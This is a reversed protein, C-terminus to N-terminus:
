QVYKGKKVQALVDQRATLLAPKALMRLAEITGYRGAAGMVHVVSSCEIQWGRPLCATIAEIDKPVGHSIISRRRCRHSEAREAEHRM